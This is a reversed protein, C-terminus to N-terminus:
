KLTKVTLPVPLQGSHLDAAIERPGLPKDLSHMIPFGTLISRGCIKVTIQEDTVVKNDLVVVALGGVTASTFTCLTQSGSQTLRIGVYAYGSRHVIKATWGEIGPRGIVIKVVQLSQNASTIPDNKYRVVEGTALRQSASPYAVGIGFRGVGDIDQALWQLWRITHALTVTICDSGTIRVIAKSFGFGHKVRRSVVVAAHNLQTTSTGAPACLVVVSGQIAGDRSTAPQGAASATLPVMLTLILSVAAGAMLRRGVLSHM